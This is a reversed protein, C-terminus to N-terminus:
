LGRRNGGEFQERKLRYLASIDEDGHGRNMLLGYHKRTMEVLPLNVDLEALLRQCLALDKDHLAMRFGPAFDGALMRAGRRELLRSGAAGGALVPLLRERDLGSADAFALAESIAQIVGAALVQNVAKARQGAGLPGMHVVETAFAELAPRAQDLAAAEGGVMVMLTGAEAGERGGTVPADLFRAGRATVRREAEVVTDVGVTSCDAVVQGPRLGPALADVVELVDADGSVCILVTECVAALAAPDEAVPVGLEGALAEARDHSRNWVAALRGARALNRAMGQGMVGLGIIGASM